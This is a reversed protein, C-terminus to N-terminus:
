QVSGEDARDRLSGIRAIVVDSDLSSSATVADLALQYHHRADKIQGLHELSVALNFLYDANGADIQLAQAFAHRAAPWRSQRAMLTGLAFQLYASDPHGQILHKIESESADSARDGHGSLLAVAAATNGPEVSLLAEYLELAEEYRGRRYLIAALGQLANPHRPAIALAERYGHEAALVDGKEYADYAATLAAFALDGAKEQLPAVTTKAARAMPASVAPATTALAPARDRHQAQPSGSILRFRNRPVSGPEPTSTVAPDLPRSSMAGLGSGGLSGRMSQYTYQSLAGLGVLLLCLVPTYRAARALGRVRGHRVTIARATLVGRPEPAIEPAPLPPERDNEASEREDQEQDVPSPIGDVPLTEMTEMLELAGPDLAQDNAADPKADVELETSVADVKDAASKEGSAQKLAEVLPSKM